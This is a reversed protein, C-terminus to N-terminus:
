AEADVVGEVMRRATLRDPGGLRGERFLQGVLRRQVKGSPTRPLSGFRLAIVGKAAQGIQRAVADGVRREIAVVEDPPGRFAREIEVFVVLEQTGGADVGIAAIGGPVIAPDANMAAMEVDAPYVNQGRLIILEKKRGTIHLRGARIFGLDGTRLAKVPPEDVISGVSDGSIEIEGIEGEPVEQGDIDIARFSLGEAAPGLDAVEFTAGDGATAAVFRPGGPLAGNSVFLTSEALGFSPAFASPRFGAPAFAAVFRRVTSPMVPEGGCIAVSLTSLDLSGPGSADVAKACMEYAFNPASTITAREEAILQLWSLPRQLFRLANMLTSRCGMWMPFVVHGILGMDHHLPLWSVMRTEESFRYAAAIARCNAVINGHSLGIGKPNGTSGSSFQILAPSDPELEPAKATASGLAAQDFAVVRCDHAKAIDLLWDSPNSGVVLANPRATRLVIETRPASRRSLTVPAPVAVSGCFFVAALAVVFDLTDECAIAIRRGQGLMGGLASARHGLERWTIERAAGSVVRFAVDGPRAESHRLIRAPVSEFRPMTRRRCSSSECFM